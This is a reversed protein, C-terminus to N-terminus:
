DLYKSKKQNHEWLTESLHIQGTTDHLYFQYESKQAELLAEMSSVHINAIPTPPLGNQRRTNYPNTTDAVNNGIVTPTCEAYPRRLNYCLTIDADIRTGSNLRNYFVSAIKAKNEDVREEKEIVSALKTAAHPSLSFVYGLSSLRDSLWKIQDAYPKWIKSEYTELQLLVLQDILDLDRDVFYTEPYLYWELTDIDGAIDLFGFRNKYKAIIDPNTVFDIYEGAQIYEKEALRNDIDYISWWELITLSQYALSPWENLFDFFTGFDYDGSFIYSGPQLVELADPNKKYRRKLRYTQLGNTVEDLVAAITGWEPVTVTQDLSLTGGASKDAWGFVRTLLWLGVLGYVVLWGPKLFRSSWGASQTNKDWRSWRSAQIQRM